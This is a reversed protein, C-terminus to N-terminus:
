LTAPDVIKQEILHILLKACVDPLTDTFDYAIDDGVIHDRYRALWGSTTSTREIKVLEFGATKGGELKIVRPLMEGLSVIDHKPRPVGLEILRNRLEQSPYFRGKRYGFNHNKYGRGTNGLVERSHKQNEAATCWELNEPVNNRRNGDLHNVMPKNDPNPVFAEAVLRHVQFQHRKNDRSLIVRRYGRVEFMKMFAIRGYKTSYVVGNSAVFYGDFGTIPLSKLEKLKRSLELSTVHHELNM